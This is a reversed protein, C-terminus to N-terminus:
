RGRWLARAAGSVGGHDVLWTVVHPLAGVVWLAIALATPAGAAGAVTGAGTGVALATNEAPKPM